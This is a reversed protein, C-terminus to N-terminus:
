RPLDPMAQPPSVIADQVSGSLPEQRPPTPFYLSLLSLSAAAMAILLSKLFASFRSSSSDIQEGGVGTGPPGRGDVWLGSSKMRDGRGKTGGERVRVRVRMMMGEM